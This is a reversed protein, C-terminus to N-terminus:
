NSVCGLCGTEHTAVNALQLVKRCYHPDEAYARSTLFHLYTELNEVSGYTSEYTPLYKDQYLKYDEISSKWSTYRAHGRCEGIATTPRAYALKMGFANNCEHFVSSTFYDTEHAAQIFVYEPYKVDQAVLEMYFPHYKRSNHTYDVGAPYNVFVHVLILGLIVLILDLYANVLRM